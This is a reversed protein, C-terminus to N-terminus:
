PAERPRIAAAAAQARPDGTAAATDAARARRGASARWGGALLLGVGGIVLVSVLAIRALGSTLPEVIREVLGGGGAVGPIQLPQAEGPRGAVDVGKVAAWARDLYSRYAGSKFITWPNFNAGHSSIEWAARANHLPDALADPDRSGGTGREAWLSRIQALGISPGWKADVLSEDGVVDPDGGSEGLATATMLILAGGKFGAQAFYDAVEVDALPPLPGNTV